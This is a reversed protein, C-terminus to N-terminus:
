CVYVRVPVCWYMHVCEHVLVRICVHHVRLCMHESM